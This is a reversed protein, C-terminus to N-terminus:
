GAAVLAPTCRAVSVTFIGAIGVQSSIKRWGTSSVLADMEAQPRPRMHWPEGQHNTLTKAIMELQPHWPQNTYILHGDEKLQSRIGHLAMLVPTNASFLEFLGSVIVIDYKEEDAPYSASVFADRCEFSIAHKLQLQNALQKAQDLNHQGFDRLTVEIQHEQFRKITELVYRGGGAAVDLIRLPRNAPHQEILDSLAHQLQVKRQRIGRWGIAGLYGADILKGLFLEGAPQNKYVHDLSLGSDFGHQLGITMGASLRGMVGLMKKQMGYLMNNLAPGPQSGDQIGEYRAAGFSHIDATHYTTVPTIDQLFCDAIFDQTARIAKGLAVEHEYFIAHHCDHILVYRKLRSSIRAYYTRQPGPKVVYDNDAVLMLIPTDIAHAEALVRKSTDALGLLVRASIQKAILPDADYANAQDVSHTLMSSRIYSTVFLDPKILTALRLAPKALPVYLNIDFAAAAMVVGRVRPAYDNLWTAAIVAGVSNAVILMNEPNIGFTTEIHRIFAEFDQVLTQFDPADGREGPSYGHGRADWAFAWDQSRDIREILPEIRGSHEHGRHLFILARKNGDPKVPKWYRFFIRAGDHSKFCSEHPTQM